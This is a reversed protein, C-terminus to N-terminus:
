GTYQRSYHRTSISRIDQEEFTPRPGYPFDRFLPSLLRWDISNCLEEEKNKEDDEEDWTDNLLLGGQITIVRDDDTDSSLSGQAAATPM